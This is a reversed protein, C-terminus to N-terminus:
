ACNWPNGDPSPHPADDRDNKTQLCHPGLDPWVSGFQKFTQRYKQNKEYVSELFLNERETEREREREREKERERERQLRPDLFNQSQCRNKLFLDLATETSSPLSSGFVM